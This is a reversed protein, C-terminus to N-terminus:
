FSAQNVHIDELAIDGAKAKAPSQNEALLGSLAFPDLDSFFLAVDAQVVDKLPNISADAFDEIARLVLSKKVVTIFTKNERMKKKIEHFQSSPLKRTSAILFTKHQKILKVLDSVIKKKYEPVEKKQETTKKSKQSKM